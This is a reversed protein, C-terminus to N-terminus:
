NPIVVDGLPLQQEEERPTLLGWPKGCTSRSKWVRGCARARCPNKLNCSRGRRYKGFGVEPQRASGACETHGGRQEGCPAAGGAALVCPVCEVLFGPPRAPSIFVPLVLAGEAAGGYLHPPCPECGVHQSSVHQPCLPVKCVTTRNVSLLVLPM